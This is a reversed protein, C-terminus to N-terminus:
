PFLIKDECLGLSGVLHWTSDSAVPPALSGPSPQFPISFASHCGPVEPPRMEEREECPDRGERSVWKPARATPRFLLSSVPISFSLLLALGPPASPLRSQISLAGCCRPVGRFRGPVERAGRHRRLLCPIQQFQPRPGLSGAPGGSPLAVGARLRCPGCHPM